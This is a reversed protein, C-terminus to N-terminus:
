LRVSTHEGKEGKTKEVWLQSVLWRHAHTRAEIIKICVFPKRAHTKTAQKSKGGILLLVKIRRWKRRAVRVFCPGSFISECFNLRYNLIKKRSLTRLLFISNSSKGQQLPTLHLRRVKSPIIRSHSLSNLHPAFIKMGTRESLKQQAMVMWRALINSECVIFIHCIHRLMVKAAHM